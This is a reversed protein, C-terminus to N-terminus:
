NGDNLLWPRHEQLENDLDSAERHVHLFLLRIFDDYIRGSTDVTVPIIPNPRDLYIQHYHLIKVRTVTKLPGDPDPAGDSRRTHTLQGITWYPTGFTCLSSLSCCIQDDLGFIPWRLTWSWLVHLFFDQVSRRNKPTEFNKKNQSQLFNWHDSPTNLRGSPPLPPLPPTDFFMKQYINYCTFRSSFLICVFSHRHLSLSIALVSSDLRREYVTGFFRLACSLSSRPRSSLTPNYATHMRSRPPHPRSPSFTGM